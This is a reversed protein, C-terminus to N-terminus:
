SVLCVFLYIKGRRRRTRTERGREREREKERRTDAWRERIREHEGVAGIQRDGERDTQRDM